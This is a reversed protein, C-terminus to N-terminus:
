VEIETVTTYEKWEISKPMDILKFLNVLRSLADRAAEETSYVVPELYFAGKEPRGLTLWSNYTRPILQEVRFWEEDEISCKTIRLKRKPIM